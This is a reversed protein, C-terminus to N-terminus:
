GGVSRHSSASTGTARLGDLIVSVYSNAVEEATSPGEDSLWPRASRFMGIVGLRVVPAIPEWCGETAGQDFVRNWLAEYADRREHIVISEEPDLSGVSTMAVVSRPGESVFHEFLVVALKRLKVDAVEAPDAIAEESRSILFDLSRLVIYTLLKAKSGIHHYLAGRSIGAATEIDHIGTADYGKMAFLEASIGLVRDRTGADLRGEDNASDRSARELRQPVSSNKGANM